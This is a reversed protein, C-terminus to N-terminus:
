PKKVIFADLLDVPVPIKFLVAKFLSNTAWTQMVEM